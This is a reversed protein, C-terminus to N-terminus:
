RSERYETKLCKRAECQFHSSEVPPTFKIIKQRRCNEPPRVRGGAAKLFAPSVKRKAACFLLWGFM